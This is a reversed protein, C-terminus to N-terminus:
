SFVNKKLLNAKKALSVISKERFLSSSFFNNSTLCIEVISSLNIRCKNRLGEINIVSLIM